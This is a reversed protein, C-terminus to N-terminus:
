GNWADMTVWRLRLRDSNVMLYRIPQFNSHCLMDCFTRGKICQWLRVTSTHLHFCSRGTRDVVARNRVSHSVSPQTLSAFRPLSIGGRIIDSLMRCGTQEAGGGVACWQMVYSLGPGAHAPNTYERYLVKAGVM